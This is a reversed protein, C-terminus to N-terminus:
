NRSRRKRKSKRRKTSKRKIRKSSKRKRSKRKIRKSSKRKRSKRRSKSRSKRKTRKNNSGGGAAAAAAAAPDDPMIYAPSLINVIETAKETAEEEEEALAFDMATLGSNVGTADVAALQRDAGKNLLWQVANTNGFCVAIMLPTLGDRDVQNLDLDDREGLVDMCRVHNEIAAIMLATNGHEDAANIDTCDRLLRRVAEADGERAADRLALCCDGRPPLEETQGREETLDRHMKAVEDPRGNNTIWAELVATTPWELLRGDPYAPVHHNMIQHDLATFGLHDTLRWDAGKNLLWELANTHGRSTVIMLPTWGESDVPNLGLDDREGLAEMCGVHNEIAAIMLATNGYEDAANIDAGDRLLQRVADADGVRAADRLGENLPEMIYQLM